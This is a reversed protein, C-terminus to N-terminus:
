GGDDREYDIDMLVFGDCNCWVQPHLGAQTHSVLKRDGCHPCEYIVTESM